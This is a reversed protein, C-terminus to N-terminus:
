KQSKYGGGGVAYLGSLFVPIVREMEIMKDALVIAEPKQGFGSLITQNRKSSLEREFIRRGRGRLKKTLFSYNTRGHANGELNTDIEM